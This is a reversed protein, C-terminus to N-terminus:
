PFAKFRNVGFANTIQETAAAAAVTAVVGSSLHPKGDAGNTLVNGADTSIGLLAGLNITVDPTTGSNDTLTLVMTTANFSGGNVFVDAALTSLDLSTVTGAQNTFDLVKTVPNYSLVANPSSLVGTGADRVLTANDLKVHIKNAEILGLDFENGLDSPTVVPIAM